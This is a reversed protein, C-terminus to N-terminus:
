VHAPAREASARLLTEVLARVDQERDRELARLVTRAEHTPAEGLAAVAALRRGLPRKRQLLGAPRAEQALRAVAEATGQRGLASFIGHLVEEEKETELAALLAPVARSHKVGGLGRAAKLRVSSEADSLARVITHMAKPTGLRILALTAARRVRPDSHELTEILSADADVINMEGLLDAANRVVYWQPHRLQHVLPVAAAPCQLIADRYARRETASEAAILLDMLLDAGANGTRTFYAHLTDRVSRERPLLEALGKLIMPTSLRRYQVGFCRKVDANTVSAERETLKAVIDVVDMWKGQRAREEAYRGLEDLIVPADIGLEGRLRILLDDLRRSGSSRSFAHRVMRAQDDSPTAEMDTPTPSPPPAETGNGADGHPPTRAPPAGYARMAVPPTAHRVFGDRGFHVTVNEPAMAIIQADFAAGQDGRVHEGALARALGLIEAAKAKPMVELARVSHAAMRNALETLWPLEPPPSPLNTADMVQASLESHRIEQGVLQLAALSARLAGKQEDVSDARHVLLWVLRAFEQSLLPPASDTM